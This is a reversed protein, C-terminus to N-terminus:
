VEVWELLDIQIATM